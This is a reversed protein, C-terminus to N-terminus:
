AAPLREALENRGLWAISGMELWYCLIPKEFQPHGFIRPTIWDHHALMETASQAYFPEDPDILGVQGLHWGFMLASLLALGLADRRWAGWMSGAGYEPNM